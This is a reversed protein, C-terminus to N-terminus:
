PGPYALFLGLPNVLRFGGHSPLPAKRGRPLTNRPRPTGLSPPM